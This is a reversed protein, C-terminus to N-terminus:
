KSDSLLFKNWESQKNENYFRAPTLLSQFIIGNEICHQQIEEIRQKMNPIGSYTKRTFCVRKINKLNDIEAIVNRWDIVRGDIYDDNYNAEQGEDVSVVSILDIFDIKHKRIFQIKKQLDAGKHDQEHFVCPLIRWLFNRNRGYFFDAPNSETSPNFTGIILTESNPDIKHDLFKHEITKM